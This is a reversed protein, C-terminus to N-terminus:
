ESVPRVSQGYYRYHYYKHWGADFHIGSVNGHGNVTAGWFTGGVGVYRLENNWRWGAAPFFISNGNQKSTVLRGNVGTGRYNTVWTWTCYTRNLLEEIQDFTPIHWGIGWHAIAADYRATLNGNSDVVGLSKLEDVSKRHWLSNNETYTEKTTTEGWAFYHGYEWPQTAGVNWSAWKTGSPLGLDVAEAIHSIAGKVKIPIQIQKSTNSVTLTANGVGKILVKIAQNTVDLTATAVKANNISAATAKGSLVRVEITKTTGKIFTEEIATHSLTLEEEVIDGITLKSGDWTTYLHYGKGIQFSQVSAGTRENSAIPKGGVTAVAVVTGVPKDTPYHWSVFLDSGRPQITRAAKILPSLATGKVVSQTKPNFRYSNTSYPNLPDGGVGWPNFHLGKVSIHDESKNEIHVFQYMGLHKFQVSRVEESSRITTHFYLPAVFEAVSAGCIPQLDILVEKGGKAYAKAGHVGYLDYAEGIKIEAPLGYSFKCRKGDASIEKAEVAEMYFVKGEQEIFIDIKDGQRWSVAYDKANGSPSISTRLSAYDVPITAEITQTRLAHTAPESNTCAMLGLLAAISLLLRFINQTM